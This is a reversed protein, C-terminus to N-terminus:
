PVNGGRRARLSAGCQPTRLSRQDIGTDGKGDRGPWADRLWVDAFQDACKPELELYRKILREFKSGKDREDTASFYLQDLVQGFSSSAM